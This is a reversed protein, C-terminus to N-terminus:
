SPAFAQEFYWLGAMPAQDWPTVPVFGLKQYLGHAEPQKEGTTLRAGTYGYSQALKLAELCLATAIGRGRQEPPVFMSRLECFQDAMRGFAIVGVASDDIYALLVEGQPPRYTDPLKPTAEFFWSGSYYAKLMEVRDSYRELNSEVLGIMLQAAVVTEAGTRVPRIEVRRNLETTM